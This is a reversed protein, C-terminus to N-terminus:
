ASLAVASLSKIQQLLDPQVSEAQPLMPFQAVQELRNRVQEPNESQVPIIADVKEQTVEEGLRLANLETSLAHYAPDNRREAEDLRSLSGVMFLASIVLEFSEQPFGKESPTGEVALAPVGELISMDEPELKILDKVFETDGVILVTADKEKERAGDVANVAGVAGPVDEVVVDAGANELAKIIASNHISPKLGSTTIVVYKVPKSAQSAQRIQNLVKNQGRYTATHRRIAQTLRDDVKPGLLYRVAARASAHTEGYKSAYDSVRRERDVFPDTKGTIAEVGRKDLGMYEFLEHLAAARGVDGEEEYLPRSLMLMNADSHGFGYLGYKNAEVLVVKAETNERLDDIDKRVLRVRPDARREPPLNNFLGDIDIKNLFKDMSMVEAVPLRVDNVVTGDEIHVLSPIVLEQTGDDYTKIEPKGSVQWEGISGANETEIIRRIEGEIERKRPETAGVYESLLNHIDRKQRESLRDLANLIEDRLSQVEPSDLINRKSVNAPVFKNLFELDTKTRQIYIDRYDKIVGVKPAIILYSIGEEKFLKKISPTHFGGAIFIAKDKNANKLVAKINKVFAKDRDFAVSYFRDLLPLNAKLISVDDPLATTLGFRASNTKLFSLWGDLNFTDRNKVFYNYEDPVLKTKVMNSIIKIGKSIEYLKKQEPTKAMALNLRESLTDLEKFLLDVNIKEFTIIYSTYNNLNKHTSFEIGVKEAVDKLYGYFEGQTIDGTRFDLSKAMFEDLQKDKLKKEVEDVVTTRESEVALFDIDKELEATKLFLSLNPLDEVKINNTSAVKNLYTAYEVLSIRDNEYDSIKEQLGRMKQTYIHLKLNSVASTLADTVKGMEDAIKFIRMHDQTEAKYLQMDEIGKVKFDYDTTLDLYNVVAITGEKLLDEAAKNRVQKSHKSRLYKFDKESGFPKGELLITDFEHDRILSKLIEAEVKQAEYNLHIDQLYVVLPSDEKESKYVEVIRGKDKPIRIKSPDPREALCFQNFLFVTVVMGFLVKSIRRM